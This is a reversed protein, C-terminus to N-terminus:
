RDDILGCKKCKYTSSYYSSDICEFDHKGNCFDEQLNYACSQIDKMLKELIAMQRVARDKIFQLYELKGYFEKKTM